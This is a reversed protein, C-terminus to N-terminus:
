WTRKATETSTAGGCPESPLFRGPLRNKTQFTGDANGLMVSVAPGRDYITRAISIALDSRGDGNFDGIAVSIPSGDVSYDMAIQFTGDGNGLVVSISEHAPDAMVLDSKGDGNFDSVTLLSIDRSADYRIEDQFAGDGNGLLISVVQPYASSGSVITAALDFIGDGNFDGISLSSPWRTTGGVGYDTRAGFTGDGNGPMIGVAGSDPRSFAMALDSIGDGNFDCVVLGRPTGDLEYDIRSRFTGDGNGLLISLSDKYDPSHGTNATAMDLKGDGNFDGVAVVDPGAGTTIQQETGFSVWTLLVRSELAEIAAKAVDGSKGHLHRYAAVRDRWAM